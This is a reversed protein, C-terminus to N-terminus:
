ERKTLEGEIAAVSAADQAQGLLARLRDASATATKLRGELDAIQNTVDDAKLSQHEVRGLKAIDSVVSQFKPEPVRITISVDADAGASDQADVFGGAAQAFAVVRAAKTGPHDVRVRLDATHIVSRPAARPAGAALALGGGPPSGSVAQGVGAFKQSNGSCAALGVLTVAVVAIRWRM